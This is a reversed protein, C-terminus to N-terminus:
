LCFTNAPSIPIKRSISQMIAAHVATAIMVWYSMIFAKGKESEVFYQGDDTELVKLQESKRNRAAIEKPSMIKEETM